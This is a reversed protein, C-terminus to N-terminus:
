KASGNDANGSIKLAAMSSVLTVEASWLGVELSGLIGKSNLYAILPTGLATVVYLITRTKPTLEFVM